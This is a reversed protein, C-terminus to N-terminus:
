SRCLAPQVAPPWADALRIQVHIVQRTPNSQAPCVGACSCPQVSEQAAALSPQLPPGTTQFCNFAHHKLPAPCCAQATAQAPEPCEPPCSAPCAFHCLPRPHIQCRTRTWCSQLEHGRCHSGHRWCPKLLWGAMCPGAAAASSVGSPSTELPHLPHRSARVPRFAKPSPLAHRWAPESSCPM